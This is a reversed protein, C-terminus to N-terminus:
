TILRLSTNCWRSWSSWFHFVNSTNGKKWVTEEIVGSHFINKLNDSKLLTWPTRNMNLHYDRQVKAAREVCIAENCKTRREINSWKKKRSAIRKEYTQVYLLKIEIYELIPPSYVYFVLLWFKCLFGYSIM